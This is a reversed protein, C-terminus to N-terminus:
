ISVNIKFYGIVFSLTTRDSAKFYLIRRDTLDRFKFM